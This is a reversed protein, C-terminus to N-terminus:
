KKSATKLCLIEEIPPMNRASNFRPFSILGNGLAELGCVLAFASDCVDDWGTKEPDGAEAYDTGFLRDHGKVVALKDANGVGTARKKIDTPPIARVPTGTAYSWEALCILLGGFFRASHETRRVLTHIDLGGGVANYRPEEFFVIHPQIRNLFQRLIIPILGRGDYDGLRLDMRAQNLQWAAPDIPQTPDFLVLTYGPQFGLDLGLGLLRNDTRPPPRLLEPDRVSIPLRLPETPKARKKAM